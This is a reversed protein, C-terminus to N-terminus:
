AHRLRMKYDYNVMGDPLVIKQEEDIRFGNKQYARCARSNGRNVNLTIDKGRKLLERFVFSPCNRGRAGFDLYLKDLYLEKETELVVVLGLCREDEELFYYEYGKERFAAISEESFYYRFLYDIQRQPLISEYTDQWLPRMFASLFAYEAEQLPRLNM